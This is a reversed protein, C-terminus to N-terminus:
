EGSRLRTILESPLERRRSDRYLGIDGFPIRPVVSGDFAEANGGTQLVDRVSGALKAPDNEVANDVLRAGGGNRWLFVGCDLVLNRWLHNVNADEDLRALSPYRSLHLARDIEKSDLAGKVFDRWRAEGWPSFSVAAACDLFLNADLINEKGGHIQVGGFGLKGTACRRFINGYVLVGSIADDLRIGAQGCDPAQRPNRWNGIHHFFNHRYVDGRYTANGFMDVGGQDDSELVVRCVENFEIVHDNGEIRMASSGIDHMLNHAVRNGVGSLLVAPTYTHDIRSLHHIHCNEVLHGGSTLTKRDGGSIVTGGRGMSHIDCSLLSHATGGQITVGDGGCRRVTCGVLACHEGGRVHIGDASGLDWTLGELRVHSANQLEVFTFPAASLEVVAQNPDSPPYVYLVGRARDLYWEGTQDIESLLNLAYFRQGKRYGYSHLPPALTIERKDTDIQAVREYSDAWDWFWYGYLLVDPDAKWRQARDFDCTFTGSKSGRLGHIQHADNTSVGVVRVFGENPWRALPLPQNDFFLEMVPHTKFGLGSSFGGLRLPWLNTVGCSKLDVQWVRGRAEEPLRALIAADQVLQFGKLRAGGSFVPSEGEAARYAVPATETGSDEAGLKFTRTLKYSGGHVVVAVGGKPLGGQKKLARVADRAREPTAFPQQVTGPNSDSGDTAVHFTAGPSPLPPLHTRTASPDREPQGALRREMERIRQEAEARHHAPADTMVAVRAYEAKANALKTEAVYSEAIRLQAISRHVAAANTRALVKAYEARAGTYDNAALRVHANSFAETFLPSPLRKTEAGAAAIVLAGLSLVQILLNKTNM